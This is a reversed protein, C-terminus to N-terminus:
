AFLSKYIKTKKFLENTTESLVVVGEVLAREEKSLGALSTVEMLKSPLEGVAREKKCSLKREVWKSHKEDDIDVGNLHKETIADEAKMKEIFEKIDELLVVVDEVLVREKESLDVLPAAVMLKSPLEEVMESLKESGIEINNVWMEIAPRAFELEKSFEEFEMDEKAKRERCLDTVYKKEFLKRRREVAENLKEQARKLRKESGDRYDQIEKNLDSCFNDDILFDDEYVAGILRLNREDAKISLSSKTTKAIEFGFSELERIIDARNKVRGGKIMQYIGDDISRRAALKDKPLNAPYKFLRRREPEDPSSFGYKENSVKTFNDALPRDARDFYPQLHKYSRLEQNAILFHLKLRDNSMDQFWSISYRDLELGPFFANCFDSMLEWKQWEPIDKESFSLCGHTYPTAFTTADAILATLMPFSFFTEVEGGGKSTMLKKVLAEASQHASKRYFKIIM